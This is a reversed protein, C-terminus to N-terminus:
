RPEDDPAHDLLADPGIAQEFASAASEARQPSLAEFTLRVYSQSGAVDKAPLVPYSGIEVDPFSEVIANLSRVLASEETSTFVECLAVPRGEPLEGPMSELAAIKAALLRPVGPLMYITPSRPHHRHVLRLIPWGRPSLLETGQPLDAMSLSEPTIREGYNNRLIAEMDLDRTLPRDTAVSIAELTLDDHTPGVGGSTFILDAHEALRSLTAVIVEIDDSITCSEMLEIGRRRLMKAIEWGNLDRIKGTLLENGILIVAARVRAPQPQRHEASLNM